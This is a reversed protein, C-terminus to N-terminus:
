GSTQGQRTVRTQERAPPRSTARRLRRGAAPRNITLWERQQRSWTRRPGVRRDTIEVARWGAGLEADLPVAESVAVTAGADAWLHALELVDSRALKYRYGSTGQYPPDIYVVTGNLVAGFPPPDVVREEVLWSAVEAPDVDLASTPEFRSAAPWPIQVLEDVRDAIRGSGSGSAVYAAGRNFSLKGPEAPKRAYNWSQLVLWAATDSGDPPAEHRLRTWLAAPDEGHWARLQESVGACGAPTSLTSWARSWPGPDCLLVAGAGAGPELGLEDLVAQRYGLKSGQYSTPSRADLGALLTLTTISTGCCLEVIVPPRAPDVNALM